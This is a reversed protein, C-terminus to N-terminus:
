YVFIDGVELFKEVFILNKFFEPEVCGYLFNGYFEKNPIEPINLDVHYVGEEEDLNRVTVFATVKFTDGRKPERM